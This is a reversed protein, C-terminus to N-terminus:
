VTTVLVVLPAVQKTLAYGGYGMSLLLNVILLEFFDPPANRVRDFLDQGLASDIQQHVARM